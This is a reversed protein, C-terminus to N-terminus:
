PFPAVRQVSYFAHICSRHMGSIATSRTDAAVLDSPKCSAGHEALFPVTLIHPMTQLGVGGLTCVFTAYFNIIFM